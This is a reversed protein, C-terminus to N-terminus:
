FYVSNLSNTSIYNYVDDNSKAMNNVYKRFEQDKM